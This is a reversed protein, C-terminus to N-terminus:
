DTPQPYGAEEAIRRMDLNAYGAAVLTGPLAGEVVCGHERLAKGLVDFHQLANEEPYRLAVQQPYQRLLVKDVVRLGDFDPKTKVVDGFHLENGFTVNNIIALDTGPIVFAWGVEGVCYRIKILHDQADNM